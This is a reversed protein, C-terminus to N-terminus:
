SRCEKGVRREESRFASGRPDLFGHLGVAFAENGKTQKGVDPYGRPNEPFAGRQIPSELRCSKGVQVLQRHSQTPKKICFPFVYVTMTVFRNFVNFGFLFARGRFLFLSQPTTSM